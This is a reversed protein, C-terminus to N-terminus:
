KGGKRKAKEASRAVSAARALRKRDSQSKAVAEREKSQVSLRAVEAKKDAEKSEAFSKEIEAKKKKFEEEKMRGERYELEVVELHAALDVPAKVLNGSKEDFVSKWRSM